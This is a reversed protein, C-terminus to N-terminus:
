RVRTRDGAKAIQDSLKARLEAIGDRIKQEDNGFEAIKNKFGQVLKRCFTKLEM